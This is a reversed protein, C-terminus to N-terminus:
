NASERRRELERILSRYSIWALDSVALEDPYKEAEEIENMLSEDSLEFLESM